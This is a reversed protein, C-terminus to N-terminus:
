KLTKFFDTAAKDGAVDHHIRRLAVLVENTKNRGGRACAYLADLTYIPGWPVGWWGCVLSIMAFGLAHGFATEKPQVFYIRSHRQMTIVLLSICYPFVVFRAGQKVADQIKSFGEPTVNALTENDFAIVDPQRLLLKM